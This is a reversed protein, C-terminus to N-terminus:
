ISAQTSTKRFSMNKQIFTRSKGLIARYSGRYCANADAEALLRAFSRSNDSFRESVARIQRPSANFSQAKLVVRSVIRHHQFRKKVNRTKAYEELGRYEKSAWRNLAEQKKDSPTMESLGLLLHRCIPPKKRLAMGEREADVRFSKMEPKSYWVDEISYPINMNDYEIIETDFRVSKQAENTFITSDDTESSVCSKFSQEWIFESSASTWESSGRFFTLLNM